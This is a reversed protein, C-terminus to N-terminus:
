DVRLVLKGQVHGSRSREIASRASSLPFEQEISCRLHGQAVYGLYEDVAGADPKLMVGHRQVGGLRNTIPDLLFNSPGPVTTVYHGTRTLLKRQASRPISPVCDLVAAFGGPWQMMPERQYDICAGAGLQRVFDHRAASATATVTAGRATAVQVTVHGVGGSAGNVLVSSGRGVRGLNCVTVATAGVCALAAADQFMLTGPMRCVFEAPVSVFEAFTGGARTFPDVFGFVRDGCSVKTVGPGVEAVEGAFDSGITRPLGGRVLLRFSGTAIKWDVPNVSAARVRVLVEGDAPVPVPVEELRLDRLDDFSHYRLALM